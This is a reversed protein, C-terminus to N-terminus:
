FQPKQQAESKVETTTDTSQQQQQQELKKQKKSKVVGDDLGSRRPKASKTFAM